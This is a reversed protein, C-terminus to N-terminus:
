DPDEMHRSIFSDVTNWYLKPAVVSSLGHGAGEVVLKQKECAAANYNEELMHYPVFEDASGHIFLTPIRSRKLQEVSSAERFSYGARRKTMSDVIYMFPFVPLGFVKKLQYAYEDWVSSYGCDEVAAVVNKLPYGTSMMACAGGMSGGCVVIRASPDRGLIEDIWLPMDKADLWGLGMYRGGTEGCGRMDPLLVNFGGDHFHRAYSGMKMGNGSFGHLIIIWKESPIPSPLIRAFLRLGDSATVRVAEMHQEALWENDSRDKKPGTEEANSELVRDKPAVGVAVDFVKKSIYYVVFIFIAAVAIIVVSAVITMTQVYVGM